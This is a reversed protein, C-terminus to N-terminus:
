SSFMFPMLCMLVLGYLGFHLPFASATTLFILRYRLLNSTWLMLCAFWNSLLNWFCYLSMGCELKFYREGFLTYLSLRFFPTMHATVYCLPENKAICIGAICEDYKGITKGQKRLESKIKVVSKLESQTYGHVEIRQLLQMANDTKEKKGLKEIGFLFEEANFITTKMTEIRKLEELKMTIEQNGRSFEVLVDTDLVVM